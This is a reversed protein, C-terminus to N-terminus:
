LQFALHAAPDLWLALRPVASSELMTAAIEVAAADCAVVLLAVEVFVNDM